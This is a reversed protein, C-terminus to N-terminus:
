HHRHRDYNITVVGHLPSSLPGPAIQIAPRIRRADAVAVVVLMPRTMVMVTVCCRRRVHEVAPPLRLLTVVSHLDRNTYRTMPKVNILWTVTRLLGDM